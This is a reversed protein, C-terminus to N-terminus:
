GGGTPVLAVSEGGRLAERAAVRWPLRRGGPLPPLQSRYAYCARIKAARDGPGTRVTEWAPAETLLDRLPNAVGSRWAWRRPNRARSAYPQELYLGLRAHPVGRRLVLTTLWARDPHTLPFGPILCLAANGCRELIAAWVDDDPVDRGYGLDRFPLWEQRVGLLDCARRDEAQRSAAAAGETPFGSLRDWESAERTSRPDDGLVTLIAVRRGSRGLRRILAGVSFVADDFHPSLVVVGGDPSARGLAEAL